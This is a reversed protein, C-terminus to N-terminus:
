RDGAADPHVPCPEGPHVHWDGSLSCDRCDHYCECTAKGPGVIEPPHEALWQKDSIAATAGHRPCHLPTGPDIPATDAITDGCAMRTDYTVPWRHMIDGDGGIAFTIHDPGGHGPQANCLWVEGDREDEAGCQPGRFAHHPADPESYDLPWRTVEKGDAWEIHFSGGHCPQANCASVHSGGVTVYRAGCRPGNGRPVYHPEPGDDEDAALNGAGAAEEAAAAAMDARLGPLIRMLVDVGAVDLVAEPIIARSYDRFVTRPQGTVMDLMTGAPVRRHMAPNM